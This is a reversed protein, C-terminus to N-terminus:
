RSTDKNVQNNLKLNYPIGKNRGFAGGYYRKLELGFEKKHRYEELMQESAMFKRAVEYGENLEAIPLHELMSYDIVLNKFQGEDSVGEICNLFLLALEITSLQARLISTYKRKEGVPLVDDEYGDIVKLAQYLNRFYHGLVHNHSDQLIRYRNVVEDPSEARETVFELIAEFASRGTFVSKKSIKAFSLIVEEAIGAGAIEGRAKLEDIDVRLNDVINHHLDLINFFTTEVAQTSLADATKTYEIRALRLEQRQIVITIILGFLTLFTFIPNLVGGLFDGFVGGKDTFSILLLDVVLLTAAVIAAYVLVRYLLKSLGLEQEKNESFLKDFAPFGNEIKEALKRM